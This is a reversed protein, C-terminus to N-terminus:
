SSASRAVVAIRERVDGAVSVRIAIPDAAHACCGLWAHAAQLESLRRGTQHYVELGRVLRVRDHPHLRAALEPDVAALAGHLDPLAELRARLEAEVPPTEVLGRVLAQLYLSTGGAVIVRPHESRVADALAVFAAADFTEHPEVVDIGFHPVAAQEAATAKGTGIDMGRYVQMADTNVVEGGLCEALDLSLGTKGSATAGVLAVIPQPM